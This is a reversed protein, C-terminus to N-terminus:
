KQFVNVFQKVAKYLIAAVLLLSLKYAFFCATALLMLSLLVAPQAYRIPWFTMKDLRDEAESAQLGYWQEAIRADGRIAEQLRVRSRWAAQRVIVAPVLFASLVVVLTGIIMMVTHFELNSGFDFLRSADRKVFLETVDSVFGPGMTRAILNYMSTSDKDAVYVYFLRTMFFQFFFSISALLVNEILPEFREFGYRTDKESLDPYIRSGPENRTYDFVWVAFTFIMLIYYVYCCIAAGQSTFALFGFAALELGNTQQPALITAVQWSSPSALAHNFLPRICSTYYMIWSIVFGAAGIVAALRATKRARSRWSLILSASDIVAGGDERVMNGQGLTSIIQPIASLVSSSFYLSLPIFFVFTLFWNLEYAWGFYKHGDSFMALGFAFSLLILALGWILCGVLPIVPSMEEIYKVVRESIPAPRKITTPPSIVPHTVM